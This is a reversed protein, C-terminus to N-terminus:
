DEYVPRIVFRDGANLTGVTEVMAALVEAAHEGNNARQRDLEGGENMMIVWLEQHM